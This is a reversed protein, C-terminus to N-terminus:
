SLFDVFLGCQSCIKSCGGNEWGLDPNCSNSALLLVSYLPETHMPIPACLTYCVVNQAGQSAISQSLRRWSVRRPNGGGGRRPSQVCSQAGFLLPCLVSYLTSCCYITKCVAERLNKDQPQHCKTAIFTHVVIM